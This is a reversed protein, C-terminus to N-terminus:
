VTYRTTETTESSTNNILPQAKRFCKSHEANINISQKRLISQLQQIGDTPQAMTDGRAILVFRIDGTTSSYKLM